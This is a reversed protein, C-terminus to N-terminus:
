KDDVQCSEMIIDSEHVYVNSFPFKMRRSLYLVTEWDTRIRM